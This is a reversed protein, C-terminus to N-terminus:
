EPRRGARCAAILGLGVLLLSAPEPVKGPVDGAITKLKIADNGVNWGPDGGVLPNFAGILWLSSSVNGANIGTIANAAVDAYHGILTWGRNTLDSYKRSSLSSSCNGAAVCAGTGTYALVTMDSDAGKWGISLSTLAVKNSAGFNMLVSDYRENNDIAHEPSNGESVDCNAAAGSLGCADRNKEGLGSGSYVSMYGTELTYLSTDAGSGGSNSYTTATVSPGSSSVTCSTGGVVACKTTTDFSWSYAAAAPLSTTVLIAAALWIKKSQTM